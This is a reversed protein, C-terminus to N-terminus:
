WSFNQHEQQKQCVEPWTITYYKMPAQMRAIHVEDASSAHQSTHWETATYVAETTLDSSNDVSCCVVCMLDHLVLKNCQRVRTSFTQYVATYTYQNSICIHMLQVSQEM